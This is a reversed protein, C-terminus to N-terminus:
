IQRSAAPCRVGSDDRRIAGRRRCASASVTGPNLQPGARPDRGALVPCAADAPRGLGAVAGLVLLIAVVAVPSPAVERLGSWLLVYALAMTLAGLHAVGGSGSPWRTRLGDVLAVSPVTFVTGVLTM